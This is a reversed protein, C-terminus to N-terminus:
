ILNEKLLLEKIQEKTLLNDKSSYSSSSMPKANAYSQDKIRQNYMNIHPLIVFKNGIDLAFKAEDETLLIENIKEGVRTGINEIKIESPDKGIKSCVENIMVNALDKINLTPMKLIFTESGQMETATELVLNVAQPVSMMFRNMNENTITVPKGSTIQKKFLDIVSGRSGMVNGFRVAAFKTQKNGKHYFASAILKESLLKTVGMIGLPNAAKDTSIAIVKEVGADLAADIVNQTGIVNTKVAEFPNYESLHVHKLAAAHFVYDIGEMAKRLRDKERIDGILFRLPRKSYLVESQSGLEVQLNFQKTDDRSLVRLINPNQKLIQRVIESGISGTGGTVLINKGEFPNNM